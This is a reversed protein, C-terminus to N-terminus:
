QRPTGRNIWARIKNINCDDFPRGDNPMPPFGSLHLITGMLNGSEAAAKTEDYSTFDSQGGGPIHCNNDDTGCSVALIPKIDNEYTLAPITDCFLLPHVEELNDNKCSLIVLFVMTTLIGTYTLKM